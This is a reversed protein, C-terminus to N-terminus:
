RVRIADVSVITGKSHKVKTGLLVVKVSHQKDTLKHSVWIQGCGSFKRYLSLTTALKGDVYVAARGSRPSKCGDLFIQNGVVKTSVSSKAHTKAKDSSWIFSKGRADSASTTRWKADGHSKVL